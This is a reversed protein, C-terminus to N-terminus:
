AHKWTTTFSGKSPGALASTSIQIVGASTKMNESEAPGITGLMKSNISGDSFIVQHFNSPPLQTGTNSQLANDILLEQQAAGGGGALSLTFTHSKTLDRLTATTKSSSTTVSGQLVDGPKVSAAQGFKPSSNVTVGPTATENGGTCQIRLYAGNLEGTTPSGTLMFVGPVIGSAATGCKVIPMKFEAAVRVANPLEFIWGAQSTSTVTSAAFASGANVSLGVCATAAAVSIVRLFSHRQTPIESAQNYTRL